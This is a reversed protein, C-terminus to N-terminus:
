RSAMLELELRRLWTTNLREHVAHLQAAAYAGPESEWMPEGVLGATRAVPREFGRNLNMLDIDSFATLEILDMTVAVVDQDADREFEVAIDLDHPDPQDPDLTSGFVGMIRIHHRGALQALRGDREAARLRELAARARSM